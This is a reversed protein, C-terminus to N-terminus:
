TITNPEDTQFLVDFSSVFKAYSQWSAQQIPSNPRVTAHFICAGVDSALSGGFRHTHCVRIADQRYKAYVGPNKEVIAKDAILAVSITRVVAASVNTSEGIIFQEATVSSISVFPFGVVGQLLTGSKPDYDPAIQYVIGKVLSFGITALRIAVKAAMEEVIAATM